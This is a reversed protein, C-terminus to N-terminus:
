KGTLKKRQDEPLQLKLRAIVKKNVRKQARNVPNPYPLFYRDADSAKQAEIHDQLDKSFHTM